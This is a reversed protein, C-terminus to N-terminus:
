NQNLRIGSEILDTRCGEQSVKASLTPIGTPVYIEPVEYCWATGIKVFFLKLRM